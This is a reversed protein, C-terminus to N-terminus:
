SNGPNLLQSFLVIATRRCLVLGPSGWQGLDGGSGEGQGGACTPNLEPEQCNKRVEFGGRSQWDWCRGQPGSM